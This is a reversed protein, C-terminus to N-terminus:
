DWHMFISESMTGSKAKEQTLQNKISGNRKKSKHPNKEKYVKKVLDSFGEHKLYSHFIRM